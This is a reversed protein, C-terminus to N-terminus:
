RVPPATCLPLEDDGGPRTALQDSERLARPLDIANAYIGATVGIHAHGLIEKIVVIDGGQELLLAATSHRLDHFRIRRLGARHLLRGFRQTLNPPDLPRGTLTTVVFGRDTWRTGAVQREEQQRKRQGKLSNVSETTLAIHRESARTKVTPM